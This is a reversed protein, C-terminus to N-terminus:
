RICVTREGDASFVGDWSGFQVIRMRESILTPGSTRVMHSDEIAQTSATFTLDASLGGYGDLVIRLVRMPEIVELRLPAARTERDLTLPGSGYVSEQRGGRSISLAADVLGRNPYVALGFGFQTTLGTDFMTLWYRDYRGADSSVPHAVPYSTQHIPYDDWASLM